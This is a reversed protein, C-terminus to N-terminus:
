SIKNITGKNADVEVVDGDKFIKTAIQTGVICPKKLERAVIAAHATLGGMDTVFAAAKKMAPLISPDTTTSVLIDGYKVKDVDKTSYVIKVTGTVCGNYAIQGKLEAISKINKIANVVNHIKIRAQSGVYFVLGASEKILISYDNARQALKKNPKRGKFIEAIEDGHYSYLIKLPVGTIKSIQRMYPHWAYYGQYLADVRLAKNFLLRRLDHLLRKRKADIPLHRESWKQKQALSRYNENLTELLKSANKAKLLGRLRAEYYEPTLAPGMWGYQTWCYTSIHKYFISSLSKDQSLTKKINKSKIIQASIKSKKQIKLALKLFDLEEKQIFSLETPLILAQWEEQGFFRGARTKVYSRLYDSLLSQNLELLNTVMGNSWLEHTAQHYDKYLRYIESLSLVTPNLHLLRRNIRFLKKAWDEVEALNKELVTPNKIVKQFYKEGASKWESQSIFIRQVKGDHDAIVHSLNIGTKRKLELALGFIYCSHFWPITHWEGWVFWDNKFPKKM